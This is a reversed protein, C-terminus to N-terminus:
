NDVFIQDWTSTFNPLVASRIARRRAFITQRSIRRQEYEVVIIAERDQHVLWCERVGHQGFLRIREDTNGIRPRPSLV